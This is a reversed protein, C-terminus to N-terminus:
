DIHRIRRAGFYGEIYKMESEVVKQYSYYASAHLV